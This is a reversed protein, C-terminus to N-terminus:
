LYHVRAFKIYLTRHELLTSIIYECELGLISNRLTIM